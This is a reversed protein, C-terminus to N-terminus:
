PRRKIAFAGIAAILGLAGVILGLAGLTKASDVDSKKALDKTAPTTNTTAPATTATAGDGAATLTLVPAPHEPEAGGPTEEEIWSVKSGVSYTQLAKFVLEDADAPLGVSVTFQQFQGAEIKGGTWTVRSVAETVEGEDTKIPKDVPTTAVTATWGAIPLVDAAAIPHDTPFVIAVETTSASESENPVNFSLVADSGKPASGPSISVHAWAPGAMVVVAGILLGVVAVRTARFGSTGLRQLVV